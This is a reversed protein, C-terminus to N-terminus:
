LGKEKIANASEVSHVCALRTDHVIAVFRHEHGAKIPIAQGGWFEGLCKDEGVFAVVAGSGVFTAHDYDHKHQTVEDGRNKLLISRFYIGCVEDIFEITGESM